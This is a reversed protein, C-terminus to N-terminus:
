IFLNLLKQTELPVPFGYTLPSFIIFGAFIIFVVLLFFGVSLVNKIDVSKEQVGQNKIKYTKEIKQKKVFLLKDCLFAFIIIGFVLSTFYHYLFTARAILIFPLLNLFYGFLLWYIIPSLKKRIKQFFILTLATIISAFALWWIVPNAVLYIDAKPGGNKENWYWIPKKALPWQFWRSAYPHSATIRANYTYM